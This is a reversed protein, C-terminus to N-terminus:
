SVGGEAPCPPNNLTSHKHQEFNLPYGINYLAYLRNLFFAQLGYCLFFYFHLPDPATENLKYLLM